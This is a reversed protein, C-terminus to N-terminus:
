RPDYGIGPKPMYIPSKSMLRELLSVHLNNDLAKQARIIPGLQKPDGALVVTSKDSHYLGIM